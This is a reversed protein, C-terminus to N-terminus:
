VRNLGDEVMVQASGKTHYVDVIRHMKNDLLWTKYELYRSFWMHACLM